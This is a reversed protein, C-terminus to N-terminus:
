ALFNQTHDGKVWIDASKDLLEDRIIQFEVEVTNESTGSFNISSIQPWARWFAYDETLNTADNSVPHFVLKRSAAATSRQNQSTGAATVATGSGPTFETATAELLAKIKAAATEKMTVTIADLNQGIIKRELVQEGFQHATIDLTSVNFSISIDGDLLGLDLDAGQRLVTITFGTSATADDAADTVDGSAVNQIVVDNASTPSVKANFDNESDIATATATAVAAATDDATISVAIGTKGAPAPDTASGTDYWVYYETDPSNLTFFTGDLSGSSDAVTEVCTTEQQEWTVDVPGVQINQTQSECGM